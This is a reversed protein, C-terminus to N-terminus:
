VLTTSQTSLDTRSLVLTVVHQHYQTSQKRSKTLLKQLVKQQASILVTLALSGTDMSDVKVTIKNYDDATDGIQLTLGESEAEPDKVLTGNAFSTQPTKGDATTIVKYGDKNLQAILAQEDAFEGAKLMQQMQLQIHRAM